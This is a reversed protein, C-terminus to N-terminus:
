VPFSSFDSLGSYIRLNFHEMQLIAWAPKIANAKTNRGAVM